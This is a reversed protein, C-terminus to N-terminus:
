YDHILCDKSGVSAKRSSKFEFMCSLYTLLWWAGLSCFFWLKSKTTLSQLETRKGVLPMHVSVVTQLAKKNLQSFIQGASAEWIYGSGLLSQIIIWGYKVESTALLLLQHFEKTPMLICWFGTQQQLVLGPSNKLSYQEIFLELDFGGLLV